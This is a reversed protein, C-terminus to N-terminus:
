KLIELLFDYVEPSQNEFPLSLNYRGIIIVAGSNGHEDFVIGDDCFSVINKYTAPKRGLNIARLVDELHIPKGIIEIKSIPVREESNFGASKDEAFLDLECERAKGFANASSARWIYQIQYLTNKYKVECGFELKQLEPCMERIKATVIEKNTM